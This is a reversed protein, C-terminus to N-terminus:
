GVQKRPRGPKRKPEQALGERAAVKAQGDMGKGPKGKDPQQTIPQLSAM